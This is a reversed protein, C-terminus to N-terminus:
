KFTFKGWLAPTLQAESPVDSTIATSKNSWYVRQTTQFGNGRLIGLDGALTTGSNINTMGLVKRPISFEYTGHGDASFELLDSVDDVHDISISRWSSSFKVPEQTGPVVPRYLLALPKGDPKLTVLLRLDGQAPDRRSPDAKPNTALMLDLCGGNKFPANPTEASNKLLDKDGTRFIAHLRDSSLSLAATVDYPKSDSNFNARVGRTDISAWSASQWDPKGQMMPVTLTESGQAARRAAERTLQWTSSKALDAATIKLDFPAIRRISDLGDVRVLSSRGGDVLYTKGDSTTTISPWFNEDHLSLDNLNAGREARPMSWSKGTRVDHFLEAVYLGDATFVYLNGMNGNVSFLPGSEGGSPTFFHGLLRTTGLIMGPESAVPCEHSAHLGPWLSPYSWTAHGIKGGGLSEPAFPKPSITSVALGEPTTILQDGGSTTPFQADPFVMEPHQLDYIPIQTEAFRTSPFRVAVGDLRSFTISLDPQFVIGGVEGKKMMVEDPSPKGDANLDNWIFAAQNQGPNGGPSLDQPWVPLFPPTKLISWDQARGAANCRRAIGNDEIWLTAVSAGNTPSSNYSNTFYRRGHNGEIPQEPFGNTHSEGGDVNEGPRYLVRSLKDTGSKWDLAFEMGRYYFRSKDAPDLTGGGGYESPGSFAKLLTGSRDWVSVRKPQYDNETVWIMGSGDIALGSPHNMHLEDYPGASPPGPKGLTGAIKGDPNFIKVQHSIGRDSIYIGGMADLALGHPDELDSILTKIESLNGSNPLGHITSRLLSNKTLILLNGGADFALARPHDFPARAIIKGSKADVLLIENQRVLSVAIIGDHAAIGGLVYRREGGDFGALVPVGEHHSQGHEFKDEGLIEKIVNRDEGATKATIRLEGEWISAAYCIDGAVAAPGLDTTLTPAGTWVGGIWGQGGIKTGDLRIWQLGHGGEAVFAGLYLRPAGDPSKEAPVFTASTPPTHNTMWGGSNDATSWAPNGSNYISFEYILDIDKKWLGRVRYDGPSVFQSPIHYVGHSAAEPDRGLDDTGDWWATNNGAPFSTDAILNRVRKGNSDEIVLTVRGPEPLNFHIPIPPHSEKELVPLVTALPDDGLARLALIEGVWVGRGGKIQDRLHDHGEHLASIIRLRIARTHTKEQVSFWEPALERPYSSRLDDRSAVTKWDSELAERPHRSDPGTYIQLDASEFGTWCTAVASLPIKTPWTLQMWEPRDLSVPQVAGKEGNRWTNWMGDNTSNKIRDAKDLQTSATAIAQTAVNAYRDALVLTGGLRGDYTPDSAAAVHSFRLARTRTGPPLIWAAYEDEGVEGTSIGAGVIREAALWKSDDSLDGPYTADHKLVSLSGGGRVLVTCCPVEKKWALRLHRIGPTTNAGFAVGGWDSPSSDTWLVKEQGGQVEVVSEKGHSWEAFSSPDLDSKPVSSTFPAASLSAVTLLLLCHIAARHKRPMLTMTNPEFRRSGATATLGNGSSRPFIDISGVRFRCDNKFRRQINILDLVDGEFGDAKWRPHFKDM